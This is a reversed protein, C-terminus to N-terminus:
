VNVEGRNMYIEEIEKYSYHEDCLSMQKVIKGYNMIILNDAVDEMDSLIHSSLIITKESKLSILLERFRMREEPDLGVTPEDFILIKPDAILTIAVGLRQKMGGSLKGVKCSIRDELNVQKLVYEIRSPIDSKDVGRLKAFYELIERVSYYGYLGFKQPLFGICKRYEASTSSLGDFEIKGQTPKIIDAMLKMMTSKGAGNAGLLGYVGKDFVCEDVNLVEKDKYKKVLNSLKLM